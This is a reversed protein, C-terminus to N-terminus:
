TNVASGIRKATAVELNGWLRTEARDALNECWRRRSAVVLFTIALVPCMITTAGLEILHKLAVLTKPHFELLAV